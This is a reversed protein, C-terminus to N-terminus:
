EDRKGTPTEEREGIIADRFQHSQLTLVPAVYKADWRNLVTREAM